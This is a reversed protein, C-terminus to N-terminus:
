FNYYLLFSMRITDNQTVDMNTREVYELECGCVLHQDFPRPKYFLNVLGKYGDIYALDPFFDKEESGLVSGGITSSFQESWAHELAAFGGYVGVNESDMSSPNYAVDIDSWACDAMYTGMGTGGSVSFTARNRENLQCSVGLVGGYGLLQEVRNDDDPYQIRNPRLIGAVAIHWRGHRHGVRAALDPLFVETTAHVADPKLISTERYELSAQYSWDRRSTYYRIQPTRM